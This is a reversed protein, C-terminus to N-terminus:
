GSFPIEALQTYISGSPGTKSLYLHFGEARFRGFGTDPLNAIARRLGSLDKADKIRALTLHPKFRRTEEPVGVTATAKDTDAALNELEPGAQVGVFLVRPAHPNPLWGIGEVAIEFPPRHGLPRLAATLDALRSEPWEGIFKTTIHLSAPTIWRLPAAPRLTALLRAIAATVEESLPIGTFLRVSGAYCPVKALLDPLRARGRFRRRDLRCAFLIKAIKGYIENQTM